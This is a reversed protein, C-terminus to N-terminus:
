PLSLRDKSRKISSVQGFHRLGSLSATILGCVVRRSRATWLNSQATQPCTFVLIRNRFCATTVSGVTLARGTSPSNRRVPRIVPKGSLPNTSSAKTGMSHFPPLPVSPAEGFVCSTTPFRRAGFFSIAFFSASKKVSRPGEFHQRAWDIESDNKPPSTPALNQGVSCLNQSSLGDM